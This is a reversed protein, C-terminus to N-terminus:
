PSWPDGPRWTDGVKPHQIMELLQKADIGRGYLIADGPVATGHKKYQRIKNFNIRLAVRQKNRAAAKLASTFAVKSRTDTTTQRATKTTITGGRPPKLDHKGRYSGGERKALAARRRAVESPPATRQEHFSRYGLGRAIENRREQYSAM